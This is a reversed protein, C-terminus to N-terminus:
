CEREGLVKCRGGAWQGGAPGCEGDLFPGVAVVIWEVVESAEEENAGAEMELRREVEKAESIM